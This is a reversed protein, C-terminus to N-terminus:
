KENYIFIRLQLTLRTLNVNFIYFIKWIIKSVVKKFHVVYGQDRM